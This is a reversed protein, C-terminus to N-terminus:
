RKSQVHVAGAWIHKIPEDCDRESQRAALEDPTMGAASELVDAWDYAGDVRQAGFAIVSRLSPVRAARLEGPHDRALEPCLERLLAAYDTKKLPPAIIVATCGSQNLVYELEHVRYAPNITVLIAGLKAAAFQTVVSQAHNPSWIRVRDGSQIGLALLGRAFRDVLTQPPRYSYRLKQHRSVLAEHDPRGSAVRDFMDGITTVILPTSSAGHAYSLRDDALLLRDM